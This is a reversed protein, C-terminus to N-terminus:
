GDEMSLILFAWKIPAFWLMIPSEMPFLMKISFIRFLFHGPRVNDLNFESYNYGTISGDSQVMTQPSEKLYNWVVSNNYELYVDLM